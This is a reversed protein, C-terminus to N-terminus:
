AGASVTVACTATVSGNTATINTTGAGVATVLGNRVTAVSTDASAWTVTAGSPKVTTNLQTTAGVELSATAKDLTIARASTNLSVAFTGDHNDVIQYDDTVKEAVTNPIITATMECISDIGSLDSPTATIQGVYAYKAVGGIGDTGYLQFIDCRKGNLNDEIYDLYQKELNGTIEKSDSQYVGQEYVQTDNEYTTAEVTSPATRPAPLSKAALLLRYTGAFSEQGDSHEKIIARARYSTSAM